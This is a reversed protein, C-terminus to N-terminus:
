EVRGLIKTIKAPTFIVIVKLVRFFHGQCFFVHIMINKVKLWVFKDQCM